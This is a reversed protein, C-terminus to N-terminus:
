EDEESEELAEVLEAKNMQSAGEIERDKALQRLQPVTMAEYDEPETEESEDSPDENVDAPASGSRFVQGEIPSGVRGTVELQSATQGTAKLFEKNEAEKAEQLKRVRAESKKLKEATERDVDHTGPGYNAGKYTHWDTLEVKM